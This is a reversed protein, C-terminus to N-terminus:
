ALHIIFLIVTIQGIGIFDIVTFLGFVVTFLGKVIVFVVIGSLTTAPAAAIEAALTCVLVAAPLALFLASCLGSGFLLMRNSLVMLVEAAQVLLLFALLSFKLNLLVSLNLLCFIEFCLM